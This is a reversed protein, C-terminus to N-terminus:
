IDGYKEKYKKLKQFQEEMLMEYHEITLENDSLEKNLQDIIRKASDNEDKLRKIRRKLAMVELDKFM